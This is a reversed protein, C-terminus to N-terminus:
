NLSKYHNGMDEINAPPLTNLTYYVPEKKLKRQRIREKAELTNVATEFTEIVKVALPTIVWGTTNTRTTVSRILERTQLGQFYGELKRKAMSHGTITDFLQKKSMSRKGILLMGAVMAMLIWLEFRNVRFQQYVVNAARREFLSFMFLKELDTLKEM